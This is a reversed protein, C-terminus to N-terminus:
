YLAPCFSYVCYHFALLNLLSFLSCRSLGQQSNQKQRKRPQIVKSLLSKVRFKPSSVKLHFIIEVRIIQQFFTILIYTYFCTVRHFSWLLFLSIRSINVKDYTITALMVTTEELRSPLSGWVSRGELLKSNLQTLPFNLFVLGISQHKIHSCESCLTCHETRFGM